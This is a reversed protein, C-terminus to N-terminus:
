AAARRRRRREWKQMVRRRRYLGMLPTASVGHLLVSLAIAPLTANVLDTVLSPSIGSDIVLALYFLSGVGRIGFWAVVRRQIWPMARGSVTLLVSLPRIVVLLLAAYALPEGRWQVWPMAFGMLLVMVVEVLRGCRHGFSLLRDALEDPVVGARELSDAAKPSRRFLGLAAAFVFLFSSTDTLRSLGYAVTIIGLYLLEDWCLGHGHRLLAHIVRGLTRGFAWGLLAGGVIPWALDHWLWRTGGVGLDGIGLLGLALMVVPLATADNLGGEATLSVRVADRDNQSRIQVESALVPDTPALIGALLLAGAMGLGPMLWWGALTALAVTVLMSASALITAVRWGKLTWPLRLQLGVAFLSILVAIETIVVLMDAREPATPPTLVKDRVMWGAIWGVALYIVAPSLPLRTVVLELLCMALLVVGLLLLTATLM